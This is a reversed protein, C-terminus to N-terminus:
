RQINNSARVKKGMRYFGRKIKKKPILELISIIESLLAEKSSFKCGKLQEKMYGFLYFDSPAIDPSYPPQPARIIGNQELYEQVKKSIHPRANDYHLILNNELTERDESTKCNIQELIEDRFYDANFVMNDDLAEVILFGNPNWFITVMYKKSGIKQEIRDPPKEERPLWQIEYDTNLYFWSEDGTYFLKYDITKAQRLVKLLKRSQSVRQIKQSSNLSHPIWRLHKSVYHLQETLIRFM